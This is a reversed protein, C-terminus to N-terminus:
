SRVLRQDFHRACIALSGCASEHCGAWLCNTGNPEFGGPPYLNHRIGNEDLWVRLAWLIEYRFVEPVTEGSEWTENIGSLLFPHEPNGGLEWYINMERTGATCKLYGCRGAFTCEFQLNPGEIM